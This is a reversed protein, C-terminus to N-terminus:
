AGETTGHQKRSLRSAAFVLGQANIDIDMTLAELLAAPLGARELRKAYYTQLESRVFDMAGPSAGGYERAVRDRLLESVDLDARLQDAGDRLNTFEGFHTPYIRDAGTSLIRDVSARAEDPDFDTPTTSAFIFPGRAQLRPYAIGFSDGTFVGNTTSDYVCFHHNAHGRTYFFTLRRRGFELVEGDAMVRVREAPIPHIEGYLRRFNEEGYVQMASAVLRSPDIAHPAARPHALLTANPCAALLASSGGAHDLHVHTIIAAEVQDPTRGAEELARLLHPLALATNNEVFLAQEDEVILYAAAIRPQIYFCDITIPASSM